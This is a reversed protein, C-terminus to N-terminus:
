YKGTFHWQSKLRYPLMQRISRAYICYLSAPWVGAHPSWGRLHSKLTRCRQLTASPQLHSIFSQDIDHLGQSLRMRYVKDEFCWFPVQTSTSDYGWASNIGADLSAFRERVTGYQHIGQQRWRGRLAFTSCYQLTRSLALWAVESPTMLRHGTLQIRRWLGSTTSRSQRPPCARSWPLLRTQVTSRLRKVLCRM